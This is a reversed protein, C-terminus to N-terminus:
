GTGLSSCQGDSSKELLALLTFEFLFNSIGASFPQRFSSWSNATLKHFFHNGYFLYRRRYRRLDRRRRRRVAVFLRVFRTFFSQFHFNHVFLTHFREEERLLLLM